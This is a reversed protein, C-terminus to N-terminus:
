GLQGMGGGQTVVTGDQLGQSHVESQLTHCGTLLEELLKQAVHLLQFTIGLRDQIGLLSYPSSSPSLSTLTHLDPTPTPVAAFSPRGTKVPLQISHYSSARQRLPNMARPTGSFLVDRTKEWCQTPGSKGM